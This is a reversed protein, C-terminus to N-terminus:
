MDILSVFPGSVQFIETSLRETKEQWLDLSSTPPGARIWQTQNPTM